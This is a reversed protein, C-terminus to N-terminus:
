DFYRLTIAIRAGAPGVAFAADEFSPPGFHFRADNSFGMGEEPIGLLSRHIRGADTEDHFCQAAYTGPPVGEIRVTVAGPHAPASGQFRCHPQLFEAQPCIAVLVHGRGNRVGNVVVEVTSDAAALAPWAALCAALLARRM